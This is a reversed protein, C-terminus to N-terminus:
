CSVALIVRFFLLQLSFGAGKRLRDGGPVETLTRKLAESEELFFRHCEALCEQLAQVVCKSDDRDGSESKGAGVGEASRPRPLAAPSGHAVHSSSSSPNDRHAHESNSARQPLRLAVWSHKQLLEVFRTQDFQMHELYWGAGSGEFDDTCDSNRFCGGNSSSAECNQSGDSLTIRTVPVIPLRAQVDNEHLLAGASRADAPWTPASAANSSIVQFTARPMPRAHLSGVSLEITPAANLFM